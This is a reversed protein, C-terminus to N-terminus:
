MTSRQDITHSGKNLLGLYRITVKEPGCFAEFYSYYVCYFMALFPNLNQCTLLVGTKHTGGGLYQVEGPGLTIFNVCLYLGLIRKVSNATKIGIAKYVKGREYFM